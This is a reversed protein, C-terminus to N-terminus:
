GGLGDDAIMVKANTLFWRSSYNSDRTEMEILNVYNNINEKM